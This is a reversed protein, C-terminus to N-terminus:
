ELAPPTRDVGERRLSMTHEVALLNDHWGVFCKQLFRELRPPVCTETKNILRSVNGGVSPVVARDGFDLGDLLQGHVDQFDGHHHHAFECAVVGVKTPYGHTRGEQFTFTLGVAGSGSFYTHGGTGSGDIEGDDEDVSDINAAPSLVTGNGTVDPVDMTGDEFTENCFGFVASAAFPSDSFGLYPSPGIYTFPASGGARATTVMLGFALVTLISCRLPTM